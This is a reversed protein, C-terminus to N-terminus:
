FGFDSGNLEIEGVLTIAFNSNQDRIITNGSDFYYELNNGSVAEEGLKNVSDFGLNEFKIIDENQMFDLIIDSNDITSDTINEYIFQDNGAGGVITDAGNGGSILDDGDYGKLIDDGNGGNLIDDGLGSQLNDDGDEGNLIDDGDSSWLIDNGAGGNIIIDGYSFTLSTLDILDDGNGANIEEIGSIKAIEGLNSVIADDLFLVDSEGTLNLIDYGEGGDFADYSRVKGAVSFEDGSYVNWANYIFNEYEQWFNDAKFNIVDDGAGAVIIDASNEISEIIDSEESGVIQLVDVTPVMDELINRTITVKFNDEFFAGKDDTAKVLFSLKGDRGSKGSLINTQEDFNIWDPLTGFGKLSIQYTLKESDVDDFYDDLNISFEEEVKIEFDDIGGFPTDNVNNIFITRKETGVENEITLEDIGFFNENSLYKYENTTENFIVMGYLASINPWRTEEEGTEENIQTIQNINELVLEEDENGIYFEKSIAIEQNNQNEDFNSLSIINEEDSFRLIEIRNESDYQNKLIIKNTVDDGVQIELDNGNQSFTLDSQSISSDFELYDVDDSIETIIDTGSNANYVYIDSGLGGQLIDNGIKGNLINSESNGIIEDDFNSGIVNEISTITDNEADGGSIENNSLNINIAESSNAYSITDFGNGGDIIDVGSGAIFIDDGEEGSLQNTGSGGDIIDNGDGGYIVDDGEGGSIEDDGAGTYIEDNGEGGFVKDNGENLWIKDDGEGGYVVVDDYSYKQTSFNIVDDGAGAHIVAIDKVRAEESTGAESLGIASTPDDLSLVDNGETMLITDFGEGGDFKDFTRNYGDINIQEDNYFNKIFYQKYGYNLNERIAGYTYGFNNNSYYNGADGGLLGHIGSQAWRYSNELNDSHKFSIDDGIYYNRVLSDSSFDFKMYYGLTQGKWVKQQLYENFGNDGSIGFFNSSFIDVLSSESFGVNTLILDDVYKGDAEYRLVDDGGEGYLEDSGRGGWLEDNGEGGYIEDDGEEGFIIDEGETGFLIDNNEGGSLGIQFNSSTIDSVNVNEIIVKQGNDLSIEANASNQSLNALINAFSIPNKYDVKLIIKDDTANFNKIVDISESEEHEKTLIIIDSGEGGDLVDSGAGDILIDNGQGGFLVDDGDNGDIVDGGLGGYITDNGDNGYIKDSGSEGYITDNGTGGEVFDDDGGAKIMDNGDEGYIVDAGSGGYVYDNESGAWIQDTGIDGYITDAGDEGYIVDNGAGGSIYDDGAGAYILDFGEQGYITDNGAGTTISDNGGNGYILNNGGLSTIIDSDDNGEIKDNGAGTNITDSGIGAIIINNGDLDTIEDDGENGEIYDDGLGGNIADNGANGYITDNDNEGFLNDDGVGGYILDEGNGGYINDNNAGGHLIDNGEGGILNDNGAGGHLQDDGNGGYINENWWHGVIRDNASTGGLNKEYYKVWVTYHGGFASRKKKYSRWQMENYKEADIEEQEGSTNYNSLNHTSDPNEKEDLYQMQDNYGLALEEQIATDINSYTELSYSITNDENIILNRLDVKYGDAFELTKVIEGDEFLQNKVTLKDGTLNGEDDKLEIVLDNDVKSLALRDSGLNTTSSIEAFRIVDNGVESIGFNDITDTEDITDSGDGSRFIITDNGLGTTITDDGAGGLLVDDGDGGNIIDNEDGGIVFDNGLEGYLSNEGNGGYIIDNGLGGFVLDNDDGSNM